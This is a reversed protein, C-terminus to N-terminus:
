ENLNETKLNKYWNVIRTRQKRENHFERNRHKWCQNYFKVANVIVIKNLESYQECNFDAAIWDKVIFGRFLKRMGVYQQSSEYEEDDGDDFYVVIDKIMNLIVDDEIRGKNEKFLDITLNKIFERQM